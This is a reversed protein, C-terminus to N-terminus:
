IVSSSYIKETVKIQNSCFISFKYHIWFRFDYYFILFEFIIGVFVWLNEFIQNSFTTSKYNLRM